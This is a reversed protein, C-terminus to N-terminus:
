LELIWVGRELTAGPNLDWTGVTEDRGMPEQIKRSSPITNPAEKWRSKGLELVQAKRAAHQFWALGSGM